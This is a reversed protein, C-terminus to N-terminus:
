CGLLYGDDYEGGHSGSIKGVGIKNFTSKAYSVNSQM